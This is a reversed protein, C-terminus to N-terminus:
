MMSQITAWSRTTAAFAPHSHDRRLRIAKSKFFYRMALFFASVFETLFISRAAQDLRWPRMRDTKLLKALREFMEREGPGAVLGGGEALIRRIFAIDCAVV